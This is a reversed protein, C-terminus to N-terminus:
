GSPIMILRTASAKWAAVVRTGPRLDMRTVSDVTVEATLQQPVSVGIRARNGVTTVSVVEGELRNLMSGGPPSGPPELSIEWPFFSLAVAGAGLDTSHAEGGGDLQVVTLGGPEAAAEGRLVVAGTFDAIFPSAPRASIEAATGRQVIKGRDVVALTDALLAAEDFSHTVLVVPSDLEALVGRLEGLAARRTASDLASLPEDLLLARPRAALARALAVRQREGGSLTSPGADALHAIGFRELMALAAARRERRGGEIGYGVNRAASMRPFLAYDQFVLGCRRREPPLDIGRESDFWPQDGLEVRGSRPRLLGALARLLSTKGAGSPGVLALPEAAAASLEAELEFGRLPTAIRAQLTASM